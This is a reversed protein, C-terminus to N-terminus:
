VHNEVLNLMIKMSKRCKEVLDYINSHWWLPNRRHIKPEVHGVWFTSVPLGLIRFAVVSAKGCFWGTFHRFDMQLLYQDLIGRLHSAEIDFIGLRQTESSKKWLGFPRLSDLVLIGLVALTEHANPVGLSEDGHRGCRCSLPALPACCAAASVVTTGGGSPTSPRVAANKRISPIPSRLHTEWLM